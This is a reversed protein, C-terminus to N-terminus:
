LYREYRLQAIEVGLAVCQKGAMCAEADEDPLYQKVTKAGRRLVVGTSEKGQDDQDNCGALHGPLLFEDFLLCDFLPLILSLHFFTGEIQFYPTNVVAPYGNFVFEEGVKHGLACKGKISKVTVKVNPIKESPHTM